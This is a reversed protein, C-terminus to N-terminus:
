RQEQRSIAVRAYRLEKTIDNITRRLRDGGNFRQKLKLLPMYEDQLSADIVRIIQGVSLHKFHSTRQYARKIASAARNYKQEGHDRKARQQTEEVAYLAMEVGNLESPLRQM